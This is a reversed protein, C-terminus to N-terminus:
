SKDGSVQPEAKQGKSSGQEPVKGELGFETELETRLKVERELFILLFALAAFGIGVLWVTRLADGFINIVQDRLGEDAISDVFSATAYQYAQGGGLMEAIVPDPLSSARRACENNFVASPITVGWVGGFSRSFTWMGTATAVLSEDLPAQMAPLLVAVVVGSSAAGLLQFCAWAATSTGSRMLSFLGFSVVWLSFGVVHIPKYRGTKSMLFGGAMAFPITAIFMPLTSVGSGVPSQRQVAQFYVPLFFLVWFMTMAHLFTIVLVTASTRNSVLARPFSPEPCLRPTWEWATFLGLGLFGLVMTVIVQPSSWAYVAGGWTLGLLISVM